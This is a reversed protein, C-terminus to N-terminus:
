SPKWLRLGKKPSWQSMDVLRRTLIADKETLKLARIKELMKTPNGDKKYFPAEDHPAIGKYAKIVCEWTDEYLFENAIKESVGAIGDINDVGDGMLTQLLVFRNAQEPTTHVWVQHKFHTNFWMGAVGKFLDKDTTFGIGGKRVYHAVIDDAELHKYFKYEKVAWKRLKKLQKPTEPRHAKYQKSLDYRFNGKPDSFIVRVKGITWKYAISEIEAIDVYSQIIDRVKVKYPELDFKPKVGFDEGDDIPTDEVEGEFKYNDGFFATYLIHDADIVVDKVKKNKKSM